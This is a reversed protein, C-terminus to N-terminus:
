EELRKKYTWRKPCMEIQSPPKSSQYLQQSGWPRSSGPLLLPFSENLWVFRLSNHTSHCPAILCVSVPVISPPEFVCFLLM